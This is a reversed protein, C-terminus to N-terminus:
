EGSEGRYEAWLFADEAVKVSVLSCGSPLRKAMRRFIDLCLMEGTPIARGDAFEPVDLHIRRNQFRQMVEEAIFHDLAGLDIVMGTQEDPTGRVTVECRYTHPHEKVTDGFTEANREATWGSKYYRHTATFQVARTLYTPPM